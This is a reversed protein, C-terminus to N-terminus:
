GGVHLRRRTVYSRDPVMQSLGALAALSAMLSAQVAYRGDPLREADAACARCAQEIKVAAEYANKAGPARPYREVYWALAERM